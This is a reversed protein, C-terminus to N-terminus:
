PRLKGIEAGDARVDRCARLLTALDSALEGEIRELGCLAETLAGEDRVEPGVAFLMELIALQQDVKSCRNM